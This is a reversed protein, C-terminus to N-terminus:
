RNEDAFSGAPDDGVAEREAVLVLLEAHVREDDHGCVQVQDDEVPFPVGHAEVLRQRIEPLERAPLQRLETLLRHRSAKGVDERLGGAIVAGVPEPLRSAVRLSHHGLLEMVLFPLVEVVIRAPLSQHQMGRM